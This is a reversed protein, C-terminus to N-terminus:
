YDLPVSISVVIVGMTASSNVVSFQGNSAVRIFAGATALAAPNHEGIPYDLTSAPVYGAPLTFVLNSTKAAPDLNGQIAVTNDPKLKYRLTAAAAWGNGLGPTHWTEATVGGGSTSANLFGHDDLFVAGTVAGSFVLWASLVSVPAVTWSVGAVNDRFLLQAGQMDVYSGSPQDYSAVGAPYANGFSDAGAAAAISARLTGLAPGPASYYLATGSIVQGNRIVLNNFEASGDKNVTWGAVGAVYNPSRIASRVLAAAGGIVRNSFGM